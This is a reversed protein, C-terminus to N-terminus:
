SMAIIKDFYGIIVNGSWRILGKDPFNNENANVLTTKGIGNEGIIAIREGNITTSYNKIINNGDYSKSINELEIVKNHVKQDFNFRIYPYM